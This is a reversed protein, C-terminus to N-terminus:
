ICVTDSHISSVSFHMLKVDFSSELQLNMITDNDSTKDTLNETHNQLLGALLNKKIFMASNNSLICEQQTIYM